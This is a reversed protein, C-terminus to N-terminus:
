QCNEIDIDGAKLVVFDMNEVSDKLDELPNKEPITSGSGFPDSPNRVPISKYKSVFRWQGAPLNPTKGSIFNKLAVLDLADVVNDRNVDAAIIGYPTKEALGLIYDEMGKISFVITNPYSKREIKIIYSNGAELNDFAYSGNATPKTTKESKNKDTLTILYEDPTFTMGGKPCDIKGSISLSQPVELTQSKECSAFLFLSFIASFFLKNM